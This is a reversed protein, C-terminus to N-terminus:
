RNRDLRILGRRVARLLAVQTFADRILNSDILRLVTELAMWEFKLIEASDIPRTDIVQPFPAAFLAVEGSLLGTNPHVSGLDVLAAEKIELGTEERLERTADARPGGGEGGFGRPIEFSEAAIAKRYVTVIGIQDEAIPLIAVGPAGHREEIRIFGPGRRPLDPNDDPDIFVQVWDGHTFAPETARPLRTPGM